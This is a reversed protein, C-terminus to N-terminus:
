IKLSKRPNKVGKQLTLMSSVDILAIGLLDVQLRSINNTKQLIASLLKIKICNPMLEIIWHSVILSFTV